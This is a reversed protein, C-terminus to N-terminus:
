TFKDVTLFLANELRLNGPSSGTFDVHINMKKKQRIEVPPSLADDILTVRSGFCGPNCGTDALYPVTSLMGRSAQLWGQLWDKNIPAFFPPWSYPGHKSQFKGQSHSIDHCLVFHLVSTPSALVLIGTAKARTDQMIPLTRVWM